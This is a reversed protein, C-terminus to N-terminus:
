AIYFDVLDINKDIFRLSYRKAKCSEYIEKTCRIKIQFNFSDINKAQESLGYLKSLFLSHQRHTLKFVNNDKLSNWVVWSDEKDKLIAFLTLYILVDAEFGDGILVLDKPIGTMSLIKVLQNLKYFGQKKVDKISLINKSVSFFDRYDKLFVSSTHVENKYLWDTIAQEYFHPSASLVFAQYNDQMLSKVIDLSKKVPPFEDLPSNLSYYIEKMTSFRTECLTKDFDSIVIKNNKNIDLVYFTGLMFSIGEEISTEYIHFARIDEDNSKMPIKVEMNGYHDTEYEKQFIVENLQGLGVLKIRFAKKRILAISKFPIKIDKVSQNSADSIFAKIAIDVKNRIALFNVLFPRKM